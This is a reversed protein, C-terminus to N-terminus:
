QMIRHYVLIFPKDQNLHGNKFLNIKFFNPASSSAFLDLM